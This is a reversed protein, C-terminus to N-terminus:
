KAPTKSRPGGKPGESVGAMNGSPAKASDGGGLGEKGPRLSAARESCGSDDARLGQSAGGPWETQLPGEQACQM